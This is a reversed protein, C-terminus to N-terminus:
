LKCHAQRVTVKGKTNKFYRERRLADKRLLHADYYILKLPLRKSTSICKGAQHERYRRFVSNTFGIYLQNDRQSLFKYM